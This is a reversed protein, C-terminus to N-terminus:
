ECRECAGSYRRSTRRFDPQFSFGGKRPRTLTLSQHTETRPPPRHEKASAGTRTGKEVPGSLRSTPGREGPRRSLPLMRAFSRVWTEGETLSFSSSLATAHSAGKTAVHSTQDSSSNTDSALRRSKGPEHSFM